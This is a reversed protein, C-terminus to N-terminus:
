QENREKKREDDRKEKEMGRYERFERREKRGEEVGM